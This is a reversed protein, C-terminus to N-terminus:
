RRWQRYGVAFRLALAAILLLAFPGYRAPHVPTFQAYTMFFVFWLYYMGTKHLAKWRRSGLWAATRDFSTATMAALFLYGIGGVIVTAPDFRFEPDLRAVQIIALLHIAHSAAFSVGIYRRNALLWATGRTRWIARLSSAVFATLFFLLSTKASARIVASWGEAGGATFTFVLSCLAATFLTAWLTLRWGSPLPLRASAGM